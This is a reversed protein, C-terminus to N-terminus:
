EGGDGLAAVVSGVADQVRKLNQAIGGEKAWRAVMDPDLGVLVGANEPGAAMLDVAAVDGKPPTGDKSFNWNDYKRGEFTASSQKSTAPTGDAPPNGTNDFAWDSRQIGTGPTTTTVEKSM